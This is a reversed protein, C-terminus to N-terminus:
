RQHKLEDLAQELHASRIRFKEAAPLERSAEILESVALMAARRCVAEIDAGSMGATQEALREISVGRELPRHRLHVEFIKKRSPGDPLPIEIKLDFRGPRLLAADLLDPRNTAALVLVDKLEEVGDLETLLQSLVRASVGSDMQGAARTTALADLEDFFIICPAAQRGKRFLDRLSRESEGVYMSLIEPGKVSIFNVGAETALAKAMLTKGCGPPGCLLVGKPPQLRCASFLDPYKVPWEVAERLRQQVEELGGVEEWRINPVDVFVERLASPEIDRLAAQFDRMQVELGSLTEYPIRQQAADIQPLVRRLAIMGAERCLAELDAGVFGHTIGALHSLDVDQALPMSHSHIELIEKRGHRDPIPISIERDFRGPRRLAPDLANPLNTAALVIVHQRPSLGDMLALLQSVVRKEVDGVVRERRPAIADIEDLFVISPARRTAEEFLKRLHAESEGYFKHIIEPGNVTFFNAEAEHAIARAILTKGCGPPGHLLVGKPADIGLREFLEPYKLPLEVIERIRELQPKLGGIEEYSLPPPAAAQGKADRPEGIRLLTEALILTSGEPLTREVQFDAARGGFLSLRVCDGATVPLGDLRSGIYELDRGSLPFRRGRPSLTVEEAASVIAPRVTVTEDLRVGANERIIGDMRVQSRGRQEKFAPLARCVTRRKGILEVADGVEVGLSKMDAPDLRAIGRGVDKASSEGVKLPMERLQPNPRIM